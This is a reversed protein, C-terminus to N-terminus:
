QKGQIIRKFSTQIAAGVFVPDLKETFPKNSSVKNLENIVMQHTVAAKIDDVKTIGKLYAANVQKIIEEFFSNLFDLYLHDRLADGHGPILFQYDFGALKKSTELWEPSFMGSEYPSPHVVLDGTILIKEKPLYVIADGSTNGIGLYLLQIERGGKQIIMKDSFTVNPLQPKLAKIDLLDQKMQALGIKLEELQKDNMSKGEFTKSAISKEYENISNQFNKAYLQTAWVMGNRAMGKLGQETAIIEIGPFIKAFTENGQWHDGHWHTNVLYHVPKNTIKKIQNIAEQAAAPSLGSDVVLVDSENIVVVINSTVWRYESIRPKLVFVDESVKEVEYPYSTQAQCMASILMMMGIARQIM